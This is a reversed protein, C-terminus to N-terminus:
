KRESNVREINEILKFTGWLASFCGILLFVLTFVARTNLLRDLYLGLGTFLGVSLVITVGVQTVLSLYKLSDKM